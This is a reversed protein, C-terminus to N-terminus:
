SSSRARSCIMSPASSGSSAGGRASFLYCIGLSVVKVSIGGLTPRVVGYGMSVMLVLTRSLTARLSGLLVAVLTVFEAYGTRPRYGFYWAAMETM